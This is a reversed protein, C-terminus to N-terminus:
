IGKEPAGVPFPDEGQTQEQARSIEAAHASEEYLYQGMISLHFLAKAENGRRLNSNILEVYQMLDPYLEFARSDLLVGHRDALSKVPLLTKADIDTIELLDFLKHTDSITLEYEGKEVRFIRTQAASPSLAPWLRQGLKAQNMGFRRRFRAITGGVKKLREHKVYDVLLRLHAIAGKSRQRLIITGSSLSPPQIM